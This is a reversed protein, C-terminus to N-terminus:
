QSYDLDAGGRSSLQQIYKLPDSTVDFKTGPIKSGIVTRFTGGISRGGYNGSTLANGKKYDKLANLADNKDYNFDYEDEVVFTGVAKSDPAKPCEVKADVIQWYKGITYGTKADSLIKYKGSFPKGTASNSKFDAMFEPSEFLNLHIRADKAESGSLKYPNQFKDLGIYNRLLNFQVPYQLEATSNIKALLQEKSLLRL